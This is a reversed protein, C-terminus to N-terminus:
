TVSGATTPAQGSSDKGEVGQVKPSPGRSKLRTLGLLGGLILCVALVVREIWLVPQPEAGGWAAHAVISSLSAIGLGILAGRLFAAIDWGRRRELWAAVWGIGSGLTLSLFCAMWFDAIGLYGSSISISNTGEGSLQEYWRVLPGLPHFRETAVFNAMVFFAVVVILCTYHFAQLSRGLIVKWLVVFDVTGLFVWLSPYVVVEWPAACAVALNLAALAIVIMMQGVTVRVRPHRM